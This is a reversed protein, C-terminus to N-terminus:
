PTQRVVGNTCAGWLNWVGGGCVFLDECGCCNSTCALALGVSCDPEQLTPCGPGGYAGPPANPSADLVPAADADTGADPDFTFGADPDFNPCKELPEWINGRRCAYISECRRDACSVGRAIPCGNAPIDMCPHDVPPDDCAFAALGGLVVIGALVLGIRTV